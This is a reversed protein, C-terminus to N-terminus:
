RRPRAAQAVTRHVARTDDAVLLGAATEARAASVNLRRDADSFRKVQRRSRVDLDDVEMSMVLQRARDQHARAKCLAIEKQLATWWRPASDAMMAELYALGNEGQFLTQLEEISYSATNALRYKAARERLGFLDAVFAWTKNPNQAKILDSIAAQLRSVTCTKTRNTCNKAGGLNANGRGITSASSM